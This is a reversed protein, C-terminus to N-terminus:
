MSSIKELTDKLEEITYPKNLSAKFGYKSYNKSADDDSYGTSLIINANPDIKLLEKATEIGGMKNPVNLDVIVIDFPDKQTIQKQYEKIAEEGCDTSKIRSKFSKLFTSLVKRVVEEDDMILIHKNTLLSPKNNINVIPKSKLKKSRPLYITFTSGQDITSEAHISGHHSKIISFVSSLGLGTGAKKTSFYPDFIKDMTAEDMGSGSDTITIAIYDGQFQSHEREAAATMLQKKIPLHINKLTVKIDGGGQMAESANLLLNNIVQNLQSDDGAVYHLDKDSSIDVDINSDRFLFSVSEEILLNIDIVDIIPSGGKAFTFLRQTLGRGRRSATEASELYEYVSDDPTLELKALAINGLIGVLLNNFDHAIGGAMTSLSNFKELKFTEKKYYLLEKDLEIKEFANSIDLAVESFLDLMEKDDSFQTPLSIGLMAYLIDKVYIPITLTGCFITKDQSRMPCTLCSDLQKVLHTSHTDNKKFDCEACEPIIGKQLNRSFKSFRKDDFGINKIFYAKSTELEFLAGWCALYGIQGVLSECIGDLLKEPSTTKNILRNVNRIGALIGNLHHLKSEVDSKDCSLDKTLNQM